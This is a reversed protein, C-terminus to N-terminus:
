GETKFSAKTTLFCKGFLMSGGITKGLRGKKRLGNLLEEWQGLVCGGKGSDM